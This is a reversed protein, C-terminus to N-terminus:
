RYIRQSNARSRRIRACSRLLLPALAEDTKAKQEASQTVGKSAEALAKEAIEKVADFSKQFEAKVEGALEAATKDTM